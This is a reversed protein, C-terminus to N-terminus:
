RSAISCEHSGKTKPQCDAILAVIKKGICITIGTVLAGNKLGEMQIIKEFISNHM